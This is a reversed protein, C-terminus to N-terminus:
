LLSAPHFYSPSVPIHETEFARYSIPRTYPKLPDHNLDRDKATIGARLEYRNVTM